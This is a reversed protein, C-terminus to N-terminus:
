KKIRRGSLPDIEYISEIVDGFFELRIAREHAFSPYIEVVDGRV